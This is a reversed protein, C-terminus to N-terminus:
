ERWRHQAVDSPSSHPQSSLGIPVYTTLLGVFMMHHVRM